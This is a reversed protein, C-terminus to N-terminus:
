LINTKALNGHLQIAAIDYQIAAQEKTPYYGLYIMNCTATYGYKPHPSVGRYGTTNSSFIRKNRAQEHSTSWKCNDPSYGKENDIRDLSMGDPRDGMDLIFNEFGEVGLWRECVTIGRGGYNKFNISKNSICRERMICYTRYLPHKCRNKGNPAHKLTLPNGYRYYRGYHISCFSKAEHKLNCDEISCYKM